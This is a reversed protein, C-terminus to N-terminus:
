KQRDQASGRAEQSRQKNQSRHVLQLWHSSTWYLLNFSIWMIWHSQGSDLPYVWLYLWILTVPTTVYAKKQTLQTLTGPIKATHATTHQKPLSCPWCPWLAHLNWSQMVLSFTKSKKLNQDIKSSGSQDWQSHYRKESRRLRRKDNWLRERQYIENIVWIPNLGCNIPQIGM